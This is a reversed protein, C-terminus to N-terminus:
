YACHRAEGGCADCGAGACPDIWYRQCRMGDHCDGDDVCPAGRPPICAPGEVVGAPAPGCGGVFWECGVLNCDREAYVHCGQDCWDDCSVIPAVHGGDHAAVECTLWVECCESVPAVCDRPFTRGDCPLDEPAVGAGLAAFWRECSTPPTGADIRTSADPRALGADVLPPPEHGPPAGHSIYCGALALSLLVHWAAGRRVMAALM